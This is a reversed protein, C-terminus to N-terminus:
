EGKAAASVMGRIETMLEHSREKLRDVDRRIGVAQKRAMAKLVREQVAVLEQVIQLIDRMSVNQALDTLSAGTGTAHNMSLGSANTGAMTMGGMTGHSMQMGGGMGAMMPCVMAMGQTTGPVTPQASEKGPGPASPTPEGADVAAVGAVALALLWGILHPRPRLRRM